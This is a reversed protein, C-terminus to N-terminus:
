QAPARHAFCRTEATSSFQWFVAPAAGGRLLTDKTGDLHPSSAVTFSIKYVNHKTRLRSLVATPAPTRLIEPCLLTAETLSALVLEPFASAPCTLEVSAARRHSPFSRNIIEAKAILSNPIIAVDDGDTQIRISRWNIQVVIGELTDGIQIRDGVSFPAEIEVAIGAFVDALTNQLALGIVIAVIGSTAVIGTLPLAFVSNLVIAATAIYIAAASLDSFLRTGRSHRDRQALFSLAAVLIRSGLFWWAGGAARPWLAAIEVTGALPPFIPFTQQQWFFLSIGLFLVADFAIRIRNPFRRLGLVGVIATAMLAAAAIWAQNM